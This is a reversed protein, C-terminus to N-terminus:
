LLAEGSRLRELVMSFGSSDFYFFRELLLMTPTEAFERTEKSREKPHRGAEKCWSEVIADDISNDINIGM